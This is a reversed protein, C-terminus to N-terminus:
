SNSFCTLWMLYIGPVFFLILGTRRAAFGLITCVMLYGTTTLCFFIRLGRRGRQREKWVVMAIGALMIVQIVISVVQGVVRGLTLTSTVGRHVADCLRSIRDPLAQLNGM